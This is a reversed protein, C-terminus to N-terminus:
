PGRVGGDLVLKGSPRHSREGSRASNTRTDARASSHHKVLFVCRLGSGRCRLVAVRVFPYCIGTERLEAGTRAGEPDPTRFRRGILGNPRQSMCLCTEDTAPGSAESSWWSSFAHHFTM